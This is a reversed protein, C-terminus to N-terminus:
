NFKLELFGKSYIIGEIKKSEYLKTFYMQKEVTRFYDPHNEPYVKVIYSDLHEAELNFSWFQEIEKELAEYVSFDVFTVLDLDKPNEKLSVFSGNLWQTFNRTIRKSFREIFRMYNIFIERRTDSVPFNDLFYLEFTALDCSVLGSPTLYGFENFQLVMNTLKEFFLYLKERKFFCCVVFINSGGVWNNLSLM